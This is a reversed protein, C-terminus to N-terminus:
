KSASLPSILEIELTESFVGWRKTKPIPPVIAPRAGFGASFGRWYWAPWTPTSANTACTWDTTGSPTLNTDRWSTFMSLLLKVSAWKVISPSATLSARRSSLTLPSTTVWPVSVISSVPTNKCAVQPFNAWVWRLRTTKVPAISALLTGPASPGELRKSANRQAEVEM